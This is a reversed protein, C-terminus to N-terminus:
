NILKNQQSSWEKNSKKKVWESYQDIFELREKFNEEKLKNLEKLDIKPLKM